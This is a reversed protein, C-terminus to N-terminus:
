VDLMTRWSDDDVKVGVEDAWNYIHPRYEEPVRNNDGICMQRVRKDRVEITILAKEIEEVRRMFVVGTNGSALSSMFRSELCHGQQRAENRVDDPSHPIIFRFKDDEYELYENQYIYDETVEMNEALEKRAWNERHSYYASMFYRPFKYMKNKRGNQKELEWNLYSRYEDLRDALCVGEVNYLYNMYYMLRTVELNFEEILVSIKRIVRGNLRSIIAMSGGTAIYNFCDQYEPHDTLEKFILDITRSDELDTFEDCIENLESVTWTKSAIYNRVDRSLENPEHNIAQNPRGHQNGWGWGSKDFTTGISLWKEFTQVTPVRFRYLIDHLTVRSQNVNCIWEAYQFMTALKEDETVIKANFFNSFSRGNYDTVEDTSRTVKIIEFNDALDMKFMIRSNRKYFEIYRGNQRMEITKDKLRNWLEIM